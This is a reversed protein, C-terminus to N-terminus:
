LNVAYFDVILFDAGSTTGPASKHKVSKHKKHLFM